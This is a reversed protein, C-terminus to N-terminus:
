AMQDLIRRVDAKLKPLDGHLMDWVLGLDVRFYEHVIVDRTGAIERWAVEPHSARFDAPLSKVAQGVVQLRLLVADQSRGDAAFEPATLGRVYEDIREISELVDM